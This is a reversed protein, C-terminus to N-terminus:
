DGKAEIIVDRVLRIWDEMRAVQEQGKHREHWGLYFHYLVVSRRMAEEASLGKKRLLAAMFDMRKQELGDILEKYRAEREGLRRLHYMFDHGKTTAFMVRLVHQIAEDADPGSEAQTIVAHTYREVWAEIIASIFAERSDFYWYFSSKSCHLERAMKEIPLQDAGGQAFYEAGKRIWAEKTVVVKPM